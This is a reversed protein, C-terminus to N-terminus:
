EKRQAGNVVSAMVKAGQEQNFSDMRILIQLKLKYVLVNILSFTRGTEMDDLEEWQWQLIRKERDLPNLGNVTKPLYALNPHRKEAKASRIEGLDNQRRANLGSINKLKGKTAPDIGRLDAEELIKFHKSSLQEQSDRYFEDFSIPPVQGFTLSPLSCLLYVMNSM